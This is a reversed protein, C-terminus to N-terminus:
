TQANLVLGPRGHKPSKRSPGRRRLHRKTRTSLLEHFVEAENVQRLVVPASAGVLGAKPKGSLDRHSVAWKGFGLFLEGAKLQYIGFVQIFSRM